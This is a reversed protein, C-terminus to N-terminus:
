RREGARRSGNVQVVTLAKTLAYATVLAPFGLVVFRLTPNASHTLVLWQVGGIVLATFLV